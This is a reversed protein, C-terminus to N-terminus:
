SVKRDPELNCHILRQIESSYNGSANALVLVADPFKKLLMKFAPIIYQVGKLEVFRSIVGVIPSKNDLDYKLRLEAIDENNTEFDTFDYGYNIVEVKNPDLKEKQVLINSVTKTIAAVKRSMINIYRDYAIGKKQYLHNESGHHRTSVRYPARTLFAATLGVLGSYVLHTHVIDPKVERFFRILELTAPSITVPFCIPLACTQVGTM